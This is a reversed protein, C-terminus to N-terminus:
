VDGAFSGYEHTNYDAQLTQTGGARAAIALEYQEREARAQDRLSAAQSTKDVSEDGLSYRWGHRACGDAIVLLIIEAAKHLALAADEDSLESFEEDVLPFGAAYYLYRSMTYQPTPYITLTGNRFTYRENYTNSLPIIGSGTLLVGGQVAMQKLSLFQVVRVFDSPLAYAATGAVVAITAVKTAPCRRGFDTVAETVADQYQATTPLSNSQPVRAVLKATLDTLTAM